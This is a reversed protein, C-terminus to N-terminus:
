HLHMLIGPGQCVNDGFHESWSSHHVYWAYQTIISMIVVDISTYNYIMNVENDRLHDGHLNVINFTLNSDM